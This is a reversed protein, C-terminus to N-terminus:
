QMGNKRFYQSPLIGFERRFCQRFYAASEMGVLFAAEAVNHRGSRLLDAAKRLRVQRVFSNINRGTAAKIKRYLTSHSMNMESALQRVDLQGCGIRAEVLTAVKRVFEDKPRCFGDGQDPLLRGPLQDLLASLRAAQRRALAAKEQAAAPLEPDELLEGLNDLVLALAARVGDALCASEERGEATQTEKPIKAINTCNM